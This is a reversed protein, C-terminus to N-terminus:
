LPNMCPKQERDPTRMEQKLLSSLLSELLLRILQCFLYVIPADSNKRFVSNLPYRLCSWGIKTRLLYRNKPREPQALTKDLVFLVCTYSFLISKLCLVSKKTVYNLSAVPRVEHDSNSLSHHHLRAESVRDWSGEIFITKICQLKRTFIYLPSSM